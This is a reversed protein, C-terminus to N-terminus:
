LERQIQQILKLAKPSLKFYYYNPNIHIVNSFIQIADENILVANVQDDYSVNAVEFHALEQELEAILEKIKLRDKRELGKILDYYYRTM